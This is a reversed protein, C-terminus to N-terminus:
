NLFFNSTMKYTDVVEVALKAFCLLNM